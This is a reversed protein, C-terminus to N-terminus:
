FHRPGVPGEVREQQLSWSNKLFLCIAKEMPLPIAM